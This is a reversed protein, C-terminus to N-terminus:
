VYEDAWLVKALMEGRKTNLLQRMWRGEASEDGSLTKWAMAIAWHIIPLFATESRQAQVTYHPICRCIELAALWQPYWYEERMSKHEGDLEGGQLDLRHDSIIGTSTNPLSVLTGTVSILTANYLMLLTAASENCFELASSIPSWDDDVSFQLSNQGFSQVPVERFWLRSKNEWQERWARLGCFLAWLKREVENRRDATGALFLEQDNSILDREWVLVTCDALVDYLYQEDLDENSCSAKLASKWEARALISPQRMNFSASLLMQRVSKHIHTSDSLSLSKVGRIELLKELGIVHKRCNKSGTAVLAELIALTTVSLIVEDSTCYRPDSLEQNLQKVATGYITYGQDIINAQGHGMGFMIYIFSLAAQHSTQHAKRVIGSRMAEDSQVQQLAIDVPGGPTLRRRAYCVFIDFRM